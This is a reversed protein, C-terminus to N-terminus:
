PEIVDPNDAGGSGPEELRILAACAGSQSVCGPTMDRELNKASHNIQRAGVMTM